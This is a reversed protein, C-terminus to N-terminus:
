RKIPIHNLSTEGCVTTQTALLSLGSESEEPTKLIVAVPFTSMNLLRDATGMQDDFEDM